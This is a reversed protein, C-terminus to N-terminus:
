GKVKRLKAAQREVVRGCAQAIRTDTITAPQAAAIVFDVTENGEAEVGFRSVTATFAEVDHGVIGWVPHGERTFKPSGYEDTAQVCHRLEHDVVACWERDTAQEAWVADFTLVFDPVRGFWKVLQMEWRARGWANIGQPPRPIEAQGIRRKGQSKCEVAAWLCGICAEGRLHAFAEDALPGDEALFAAEIWGALEDGVAFTNGAMVSELSLVAAPPMPRHLLTSITASKSTM